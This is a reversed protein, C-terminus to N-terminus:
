TGAAGAAPVTTRYQSPPTQAAEQIRSLARACWSAQMEAHTLAADLTLLHGLENPDARRTKELRDRLERAKNEYTDRQEELRRTIVDHPIRDLCYLRVLFDNKSPAPAPPEALWHDLANNGAPTLSYIKKAPRNQLAISEAEVLGQTELKGLESYIQQLRADWLHSLQNHLTRGLGYGTDPEKSLLSLLVFRLSM